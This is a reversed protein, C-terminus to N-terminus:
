MWQRGINKTHKAKHVRTLIESLLPQRVQIPESQKQPVALVTGDGGSDFEVSQAM